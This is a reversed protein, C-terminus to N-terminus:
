VRSSPFLFRVREMRRVREYKARYTTIFDDYDLFSLLKVKLHFYFPAHANKRAFYAIVNRYFIEEEISVNNWRYEDKKM